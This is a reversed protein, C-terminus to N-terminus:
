DPLKNMVDFLKDMIDEVEADLEDPDDGLAISGKLRRLMNMVEQFEARISVM